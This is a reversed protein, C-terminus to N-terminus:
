QSVMEGVANVGIGVVCVVLAIIWVIWPFGTSFIGDICCAIFASWAMVLCWLSIREVRTM